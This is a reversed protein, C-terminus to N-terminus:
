GEKHNDASISGETEQPFPTWEPCVAKQKCGKDIRAYGHIIVERDEKFPSKCNECSPKPLLLPRDYDKPDKKYGRPMRAHKRRRMRAVDRRFTECPEKKKM